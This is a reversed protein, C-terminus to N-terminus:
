RGKLRKMAELAKPDRLLHDFKRSEIQKKLEEPEMGMKKAALELMQQLKEPTLDTHMGKHEM